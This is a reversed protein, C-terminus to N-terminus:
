FHYALQLTLRDQEYNFVDYHEDTKLWYRYELSATLKEKIPCSLKIDAFDRDYNDSLQFTIPQTAAEYRFGTHLSIHEIIHWDAYVTGYWLETLASNNGMFAQRGGEVSYTVKENPRHSLNLSFYYGTEGSTGGNLNPESFDYIYYGGRPQLKIQPTLQWDAFVGASYTTNDSLEKQDYTTPGGSVEAGVTAAPHVKFGARFLAFDSARSLYDYTSTASEFNFHDYGFSLVVDHLDWSALIGATNYLGGFLATGSIAGWTTPEQDYSFQDHFNIHWDKIFVDWGLASDPTILAQDYQDYRFFKEYGGGMSFTLLNVETVPWFADLKGMPTFTFDQQPNSNVLNINDNWDGAVSASTLLKLDGWRVTYPINELDIRRQSAASENSLSLRLADQATAATGCLLFAFASFSFYRFASFSFDPL